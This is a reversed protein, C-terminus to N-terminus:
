PEGGVGYGKGRWVRVDAANKDVVVLDESFAGVDVVLAVVGLDDCQLLCRLAAEGGFAGGGVDGELGATVMAAGARASISKNRSTDCTADDSSDIWVRQYAASANGFELGCADFDGGADQLLLGAIEVFGEGM